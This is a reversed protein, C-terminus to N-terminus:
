SDVDADGKAIGRGAYQQAPGGEPASWSISYGCTGAPRRGGRAAGRGCRAAARQRATLPCDGPSTTIEHRVASTPPFRGTWKSKRNLPLFARRHRDRCSNVKRRRFFGFTKEYDRGRAVPSSFRLGSM